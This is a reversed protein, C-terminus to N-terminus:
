RRRESPYVDPRLVTRDIGTAAEVALVRIPPVRQWQSITQHSIGIARALPRMGGAKALAQKLPPDLKKQSM